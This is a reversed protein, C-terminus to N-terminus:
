HVDQCGGRGDPPWCGDTWPRRSDALLVVGEQDPCTGYIAVMSGDGNSKNEKVEKIGEALDDLLKDVSRATLLTFAMHLGPPDQLANLHWGKKSM